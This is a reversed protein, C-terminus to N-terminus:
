VKKNAGNREREREEKNEQQLKRFDVKGIMTKPLAKRVEYEVPLSYRPLNKKCVERLEEELKKSWTYGQKLVLFVKVVEGRYPHPIGIASSLMVATHDEM